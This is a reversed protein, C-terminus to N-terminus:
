SILYVFLFMGLENGQFRNMFLPWLEVSEVLLQVDRKRMCRKTADSVAFHCSRSQIETNTYMQAHLVLM